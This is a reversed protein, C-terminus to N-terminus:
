TVGGNESTTDILGLQEARQVAESRSSAGLKRYASIAQTKVTHRSLFVHDGIGRFSLHTALLPLLRLEAATLRVTRGSAAAPMAEIEAGLADRQGRLVGLDHVELIPDTEDLLLRAAAPDRLMVWARALELRTQVALWPLADTLGRALSQASGLAQRAEVWLGRRLLERASAALGLAYSAFGELRDGASPIRRLHVDATAPEGLREALLAREALALALTETSGLRAAAHAARGFLDDAREAEDLLLSAVGQLLLGYPWWPDDPTLQRLAKEVVGLMSRPSPSDTAARVLSTRAGSASAADAPGSGALGRDAADLCRAARESQGRHAYLRAALAAADPFADLTGEGGIRGIWREVADRGDHHATLAAASFIRMFRPIDGAAYANEMAREADGQTEFWDAARRHLLPVLEPEERELEERLATRLLRHYRFWRRRHDLPVLFAGLEDISQLEREGPAYGLVADCVDRDFRDLISTRRLLIRQEPTLAALCAARLGGYGLSSAALGVAAPWGETEEFVRTIGSDTLSAGAAQVVSGTERRTFALDAPGLELLEGRARLGAISITPIAPEARGALVLMSGDGALRVLPRVAALTEPSILHADDFVLVTPGEAIEAGLDDVNSGPAFRVFRRDDRTEWQDLLTSKGYGIPAVITAVPHSWAARLRNVLATRRVIGNTPRAVGSAEDIRPAAALQSV